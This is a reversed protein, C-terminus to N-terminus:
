MFKTDRGKRKKAQFTAEEDAREKLKNLKNLSAIYKNEAGKLAKNGMPKGSKQNSMKENIDNKVELLRDTEIALAKIKSDLGNDKFASPFNKKMPGGKGAKMKFAM